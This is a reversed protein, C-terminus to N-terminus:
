NEPGVYRAMIGGWVMPDPPPHPLSQRSRDGSITLMRGKWSLHIAPNENFFLIVQSASSLPIRTLVVQRNLHSMAGCDIEIVSAQYRGDPSVSREFTTTECLASRTIDGLLSPLSLAAIALAGLVAMLGACALARRRVRGFAMRRSEFFAQWTVISAFFLVVFLVRPLVLWASFLYDLAWSLVPIVPADGGDTPRNAHWRFIALFYLAGIGCIVSVTIWAFIVIGFPRGVAPPDRNESSASV